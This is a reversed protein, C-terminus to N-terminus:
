GRGRVALAAVFHGTLARTPLRELRELRLAAELRRSSRGAPRRSLALLARPAHSVATLELVPFGLSDLMARLGASGTTWGAPYPFGGRLTEATRQPLRNRLAILPNAPNDLTIVLLGDPRLVRHIERLSAMVEAERDFHDLTSNSIVADFSGEEFPMSRVDAVTAELGPHRAEAAAVVGPDVDIGAIRDFRAALVPVLGATLSEDYLDTKLVAGSRDGLWRKILGSNVRDSYLRWLSAPADSAPLGHTAARATEIGESERVAPM